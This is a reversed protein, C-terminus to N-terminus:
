INLKKKLLSEFEADFQKSLNPNQLIRQIFLRAEIGPHYVAKAFIYGDKEFAINGPIKKTPRGSKKDPKKFKLFKKNKARIIHPETGEEIYRIIDGFEENYIVIDNGDIDIEWANAVTGIGPTQKVIEKLYVRSVAKLLIQQFDKHTISNM